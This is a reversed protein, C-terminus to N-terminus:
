VGAYETFNARLRWGLSATVILACCGAFALFWIRFADTGNGIAHAMAIPWLTYTAWHIVRFAKLGLSKRLMSTVIIIILLDFAVTGLGQWLPRYKGLFPVVFDIVRLKAYPDMFLLGMHLGVLLVAALAVFRHVDAVAFRPLAVLPRGSRTAIGLSVSITMFALAVIGNGRGLAWLAESSM